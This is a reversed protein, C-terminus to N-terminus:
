VEISSDSAEIKREEELSPLSSLDEEDRLKGAIKDIWFEVANIFKQLHDQFDQQGMEALSERSVMSITKSEKDMSLILGHASAWVFNAQLIEAYMALETGEKITGVASLMLLCNSPEHAQFDVVIQDDFVLTCFGKEDLALDPLGISQGLEELLIRLKDESRM